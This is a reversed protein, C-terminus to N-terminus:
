STIFIPNDAIYQLNRFYTLKWLCTTAALPQPLLSHPSVTCHQVTETICSCFSNSLAQRAPSLGQTGVRACTSPLLCPLPFFFLSGLALSLNAFRMVFHLIQPSFHLCCDAQWSENISSSTTLVIGKFPFRCKRQEANSAPAKLCNVQCRQSEGVYYSILYGM